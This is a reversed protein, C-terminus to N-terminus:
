SLRKKLTIVGLSLITSLLLVMAWAGTNSQDNTLPIRPRVPKDPEDPTEPTKPRLANIVTFGEEVDGRVVPLEYGMIRTEEVLEYKGEAPLNEFMGKWSTAETVELKRYEKGDKKLVFVVSSTRLGEKNNSDDWIKYVPVDIYNPRVTVTNSTDEYKNPNDKVGITYTAKNPVGKHDEDSLVPDNGVNPTDRDETQNASILTFELEEFTLGEKIRAEFTVKVWHGRYATADEINVCLKQGDITVVADDITEGENAVTADDNVLESYIDNTVKHNNETGLDVVKVDEASSIFQLQADLEDTIVTYDADKTIYAVIDYKFTEDMAVTDHVAENVYKEIEPKEPRVTVTNSEDEYAPENKVDITYSAKNPIGEHDEDSLVPTNEDASVLQHELDEHTLSEDIKATFTVKVWNGRLPTAYQEDDANEYGGDVEVLKNEVKATLTKTEEDIEIVAGEIPTGEEAVTADENVKESYINNTVKHNNKEGLNVFKVDEPTSVFQLQKNLTDTIVVKDAEYSVFAVIDYTFESDIDIFEHVAENVYKEIEPEDPKVTVTNSKDDYKEPNDNVGIIYSADNPVGDHAEDSLVPDNGVNPEARDEAATPDIATYNLDEIKTGEKIRADFTVKVWHGRLPTVYQEDDANKLGLEAGTEEDVVAELKNEIKITLTQTDKDIEVVAGEVTKGDQAVTADDNVKRSFINNTVKNNNDEGLDVVMIDEAKSAFELQENLKDTIVTSDADNTIYAVIDYTFVEDLGIYKHVAQNVFKEIEPKEPKVTVTNSEDDYAPKDDVNITYSAKNPIGTHDEKSDLPDNGKNPADRDETEDAKIDEYKLKEYVADDSLAAKFTVKVWHGRYPKADSINICLKQGDITVEAEVEGVYDQAVTAENKYDVKQSYINNVVKHNDEEGMDVVTIEEASGIFKLQSNLEDTIVASDADKTIYAMIDYTFEEELGIFQHVAENIYKEIEPEEPKVTVTNSEDKFTPNNKVDITYSATNPIGDHNEKSNLPDNGVNPTDRDEEADAKVEVNNLDEISMEGSKIKDQLDKKIQAQYSIRIWHKRLPTVFQDESANEYGGDVEVLKNELTVQLKRSAEDYTLKYGDVKKGDNSITSDDSVPDSNIDNTVKHNNVEGMDLVKIDATKSVMELNENLVDEIVVKDANSTVYAMIDYTFVEDVSIFDHVAENVYKEIEPQAGNNMGDGIQISSFNIRAWTNEDIQEEEGRTIDFDEVSLDNSTIVYEQSPVWNGNSDKEVEEIKLKWETIAIGPPNDKTFEGLKALGETTTPDILEGTNPDTYKFLPYQSDDGRPIATPLKIISPYTVYGNEDIEYDTETIPSESKGDFEGDLEFLYIEEDLPVWTGDEEEYLVRFTAKLKNEVDGVPDLQKDWTKKFAIEAEHRWIETFKGLVVTGNSAIGGGNRSLNNTIQVGDVMDKQNKTELDLPGKLVAGKSDLINKDTKENYWTNDLEKIIVSGSGPLLHLEKGATGVSSGTAYNRKVTVKNVGNEVDLEFVVTGGLPCLWIGGGTGSHNPFDRDYTYNMESIKSNDNIPAESPLSRKGEEPDKQILMRDLTENDKKDQEPNKWNKKQHSVARNNSIQGQKINLKFTYDPSDGEVYIAGGLSRCKNETILGGYLYVKDSEVEIGGARWFATNERITGKELTFSGQDDRTMKNEVVIKGGSNKKSVYGTTGYGTAWVAGGKAWTVNGEILANDSNMTVSSGKESLIAGSHHFGVNYKIRANDVINLTSKGTVLVAGNDGRNQDILADGGITAVARNTLIIAGSSNTMAVNKLYSRTATVEMGSKNDDPSYSVNNKTINGSTMNFVGGDVYVPAVWQPSAKAREMEGSNFDRLTAGEINVSGGIANVFFGKNSGFDDMYNKDKPEEFNCGSNGENAADVAAQAAEKSEYETNDDPITTTWYVVPDLESNLKNLAANAEDENTFKTLNNEDDIPTATPIMWYTSGSGSNSVVEAYLKLATASGGSIHVGYDGLTVFASKKPAYLLYEGGNTISTEDVFNGSGNTLRAANEFDDYLYVYSDSVSPSSGVYENGIKLYGGEVEFVSGGSIIGMQNGSSVGFYGSVTNLKIQLGGDETIEYEGLTHNNDKKNEVVEYTEQPGDGCDIVKGSLTLGDGLTLSGESTVNFMTDYSDREMQYVTKDKGTIEVPYNVELAHEMAIDEVVEISQMGDALAKELEAFTSVQVSGAANVLKVSPLQGVFMVTVIVATLFRQLKKKTKRTFKM